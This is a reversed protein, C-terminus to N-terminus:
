LRVGLKLLAVRFSALSSALPINKPCYSDCALLATCGFVGNDTAYLEYWDKNTRDDRPDSMLRWANLLEAAGAFDANMQVTACASVCCGCEICRDLEYLHMMLENEYNSNAALEAEQQKSRIVNLAQRNHIKIFYSGTDVSLDGLMLFGPLPAITVSGKVENLCTRCALRPKGNILMACSGCVGSRCVYDFKLSPDIYKQIQQLLSLVTDGDPEVDYSEFYPKTESGPKYRLIKIKKYM